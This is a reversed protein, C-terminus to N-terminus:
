IKWAEMELSYVSGNYTFIQHVVVVSGIGELPKGDTPYILYRAVGDYLWLNYFVNPPLSRNIESCLEATKNLIVLETLKGSYKYDSAPARWLTYLTEKCLNRLKVSSPIDLHVSPTQLQQYTFSTALFVIGISIVAELVNIQALNERM